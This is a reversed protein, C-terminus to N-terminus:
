LLLKFIVYLLNLSDSVDNVREGKFPIQGIVPGKIKEKKCIDPTTPCQGKGLSKPIIKYKGDGLGKIM